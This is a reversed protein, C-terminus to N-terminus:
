AARDRMVADWAGLVIPFYEPLCGAMAANIAATRVTCERDLHDMRWLVEDPDRGTSALFRELLAESAPVVPLGDTWGQEYCYEIAERALDPDPSSMARAAGGGRRRGGGRARAGARPDPRGASAAHDSVPLRASGARRGHRRRHRRVRRLLDGGGAQRKTRLSNRRRGGVRQVLRLRWRRDGGGRVPPEARRGARAVGAPL